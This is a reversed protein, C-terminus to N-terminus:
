CMVIVGRDYVDRWSALSQSQSEDCVNRGARDAELEVCYVRVVFSCCISSIM